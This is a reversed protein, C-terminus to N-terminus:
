VVQLQYQRGDIDLFCVPIKSGKTILAKGLLQDIEDESVEQIAMEAYDILDREQRETLAM